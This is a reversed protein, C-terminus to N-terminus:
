SAKCQAQVVNNNDVCRTCGANDCRYLPVKINIEKMNMEWQAKNEDHKWVQGFVFAKAGKHNKIGDLAPIISYRNTPTSCSRVCPSNFTYFIVCGNPDRNLLKQMLPDNPSQNPPDSLILLLYESHYNSITNPIPKPKAGILEQGRYVRQPSNMSAKANQANDNPLFNQDPHVGASCKEAPVNIAVAFQGGDGYSTQLFNVIEKLNEIQAWAVPSLLSLLILRFCVM